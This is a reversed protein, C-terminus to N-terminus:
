VNIDDYVKKRLERLEKYYCSYHFYNVIKNKGRGHIAYETPLRKHDDFVEGCICCTPNIM